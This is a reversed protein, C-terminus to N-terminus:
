FHQWGWGAKMEWWCLTAARRAVDCGDNYRRLVFGQSSPSIFCLEAKIAPRCPFQAWLMEWQGWLLVCACWLDYLMRANDRCQYGSALLYFYHYQCQDKMKVNIKETGRADQPKSIFLTLFSFPGSSLSSLPILGTGSLGLVRRVWFWVLYVISYRKVQQWSMEVISAWHKEWRRIDMLSPPQNLPFLVSEKPSERSHFSLPAWCTGTCM